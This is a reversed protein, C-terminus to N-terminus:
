MLNKLFVTKISKNKILFFFDFFFTLNLIHKLVVLKKKHAFLHILM